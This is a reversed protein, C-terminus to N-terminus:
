SLIYKMMPISKEITLLNACHLFFIKGYYDSIVIQKQLKQSAYLPDVNIQTCFWCFNPNQDTLFQRAYYSKENVDNPYVDIVRYIKVLLNVLLFDLKYQNCDAYQYMKVTFIFAKRLKKKRKIRRDLTYKDTPHPKCSSIAEHYADSIVRSFISRCGAINDQM